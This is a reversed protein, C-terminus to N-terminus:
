DTSRAFPDQNEYWSALRTVAFAMDDETLSKGAQRESWQCVTRALKSLAPYDGAAPADPIKLREAEGALADLITYRPDIPTPKAEECYDPGYLDLGIGFLTGVKKIADSVAGKVLDEGGNASVKQVGIHQRTGLGPITLEVIAILLDGHWDLSVVKSDWVGGTADNLRHIVTHAEVYDFKRKGGGDRQKIAATPFPESLAKLLSENSM